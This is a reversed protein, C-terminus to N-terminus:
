DKCDQVKNGFKQKQKVEYFRKIWSLQINHCKAIYRAFEIYCALRLKPIKASCHRKLHFFIIHVM